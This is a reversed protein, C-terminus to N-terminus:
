KMKIRTFKIAAIQHYQPSTTGYVQRVYLKAKKAIDCLGTGNGYFSMNRQNRALNVANTATIANLNVTNLTTLLTQLNAVQINTENPTYMAISQAQQILKDYNAIQSDFSQQSVSITKPEIITSPDINPDIVKGADAKTSKRSNGHIKTVISAVDNITQQPVDLTKVNDLIATCLKDIPKFTIERTNTETKYTIFKATWNNYDTTLLNKLTTLGAVTLQPNTPNYTSGLQSVFDILKDINALNKFHTSEAM